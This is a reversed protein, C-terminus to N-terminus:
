KQLIKIAATAAVKLSKNEDQASWRKLVNMFEARANQESVADKWGTAVWSGLRDVSLSSLMEVLNPQLSHHAATLFALGDAQPPKKKLDDRSELAERLTGFLARAESEKLGAVEAKARSASLGGAALQEYLGALHGLSSATGSFARKDRTVFVYPRLDLAGLVPELILWPGFVPDEPWDVFPNGKSTSSESPKGGKELEALQPLKGDSTKSVAEVITDYGKAAFRELLMLKALAPRQIDAGFGRAKAIEERLMLANLFRKIQRPNGKTGESMIPSLQASLALAKGVEAPTTRFRETVAAQDMGQNKWPQSLLERALKLYPAFTETNGLHHEILLLGIYTRTETPGLAPVRMPVQILKELYNRAYGSASVTSPLDPFHQRVAYEVMIEDVAIVFASSPVFLFLRIAELTEIITTPLCRDLDDVLIVLQDIEAEKLLEAFDERFAQIETPVNAAHESEAKLYEEASAVVDTDDGDDDGQKKIIKTAFSALASIQDISPLGTALTFGVGAAKKAVKLWNIRKLLLVAKERVKASKPRADRIEAVISQLMAVKADEFGQFTWGNFRLCLIKDRGKMAGEVMMLVSSKGAGWDGHVGISIPASKTTDVLAVVAKAIPEYQLLDVATENDNLFM